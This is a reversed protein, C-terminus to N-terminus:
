IGCPRACADVGDCVQDGDTDVPDDPLPCIDCADGVTDGDSDLQAPDFRGVSLLIELPVDGGCAEVLRYRHFRDDLWAKIREIEHLTRATFYSQGCSPCSIMPINEIVLLTDGRGFSRSVCRHEIDTAGCSACLETGTSPSSSSGGPRASSSSRKPKRVTLRSIGLEKAVQRRSRGEMLVKHRVVYVQNVKLMM